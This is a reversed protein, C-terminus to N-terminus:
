GFSMFYKKSLDLTVRIELASNLTQVSHPQTHFKMSELMNFFNKVLFPILESFKGFGGESM